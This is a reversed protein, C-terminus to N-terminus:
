RRWFSLSVQHSPLLKLLTERCQVERSGFACKAKVPNGGCMALISCYTSYNTFTSVCYVHEAFAVPGFLGDLDRGCLRLLGM